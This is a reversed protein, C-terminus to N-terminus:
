LLANNHIDTQVDCKCDFPDIWKNQGGKMNLQANGNTNAVRAHQISRQVSTRESEGSRDPGEMRQYLETVNITCEHKNKM